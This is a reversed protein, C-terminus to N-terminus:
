QVVLVFLHVSAAITISASADRVRPKNAAWGRQRVRSFEYFGKQLLTFINTEEQVSTEM